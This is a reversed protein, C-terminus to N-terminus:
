FITDFFTNHNQTKRSPSSLEIRKPKITTVIKSEKAVQSTTTSFMWTIAKNFKTYHWNKLLWELTAVALLM